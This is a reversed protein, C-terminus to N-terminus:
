KGRVQVRRTITRTQNASTLRFTILYNGVATYRHTFSATNIASEEASAATLPVILTDGWDVSISFDANGPTRAELKWTGEEDIKLSNPASIVRLSIASTDPPVTVCGFLANLKARTSVGVFGTGRALGNPVLIESRYQESLDM